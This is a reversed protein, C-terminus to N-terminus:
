LMDAIFIRNDGNFNSIGYLLQNWLCEEFKMNGMITEDAGLSVQNTVLIVSSKTDNYINGGCFHSHPAEKYYVSPLQGTSKISFQNVSVFGGTKYKDQSRIGERDSVTKQTIVGPSLENLRYLQCYAYVLILNKPTLCFNTKMITTFISLNVLYDEINQERMIENWTM